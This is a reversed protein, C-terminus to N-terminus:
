SAKVNVTAIQAMNACASGSTAYCVWITGTQSTGVATPFATFTNPTASLYGTLSLSATQGSAFPAITQVYTATSSAFSNTTLGSAGVGYGVFIVNATIWSTGTAQGIIANFTGGHLVPNLCTYGSYAICSTGLLSSSSFVGLSFLAGLVVAIILIAWGYTMLYEMASQARMARKNYNMKM